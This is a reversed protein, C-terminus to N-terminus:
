LSRDYVCAFTTRVAVVIFPVPSPSANLVTVHLSGEDGHNLFRPATARVSFPLRVRFECEGDVGFKDGGLTALVLVRYKTLNDPLKFQVRAEGRDSTSM